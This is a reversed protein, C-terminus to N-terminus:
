KLCEESQYKPVLTIKQNHYKTHLNSTQHGQSVLVVAADTETHTRDFLSSMSSNQLFPSIVARSDLNDLFLEAKISVCGSTVKYGEDDTGMMVMDVVIM